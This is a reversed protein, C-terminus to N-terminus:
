LRSSFFFQKNHAIALTHTHYHNMAIQIIGIYQRGTFVIECLAYKNSPFLLFVLNYKFYNVYSISM